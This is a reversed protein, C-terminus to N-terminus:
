AEECTLIWDFGAQSIDWNEVPPEALVTFVVGPGDPATDDPTRITVALPLDYNIGALAPPVWGNGTITIQQKRSAWHRQKVASGDMMRHVIVGGDVNAFSQRLGLTAHADVNVTTTGDFVTIQSM